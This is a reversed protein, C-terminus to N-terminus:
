RVRCLRWRQWRSERVACLFATFVGSQLRASHGHCLVEYKSDYWFRLFRIINRRKFAVGKYAEHVLPSRGRNQKCNDCYPKNCKLETRTTLGCCSGCCRKSDCVTKRKEVRITWETQSELTGTVFKAPSDFGKSHVCRVQWVIAVCRMACTHWTEDVVRIAPNASADKQWPEQWTGSWSIIDLSM